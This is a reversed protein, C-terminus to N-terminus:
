KGRGLANSLNEIILFMRDVDKTAEVSAMMKVEIQKLVENRQLRSMEELGFMLCLKRIFANFQINAEGLDGEAKVLDKELTELKIQMKSKM